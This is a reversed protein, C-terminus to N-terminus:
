EDKMDEHTQHNFAEVAEGITKMLAQADIQFESDDLRVIATESDLAPDEQVSITLGEVEAVVPALTRAEGPAVFLVIARAVHQRALQTVAEVIRAHATQQLTEPLVKEILVGMLPELGRMMQGAAEHYTFSLDEIKRRFAESVKGRESDQAKMSDDWGAQYGNEFAALRADELEEEDFTRIERRLTAPGTFDELLHSIAM